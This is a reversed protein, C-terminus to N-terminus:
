KEKSDPRTEPYFCSAILGAANAISLFIFVGCYASAPYGTQGSIAFHQLIRGSINQFAAIYVFCWFNLLAVALGTQEPPNLEKAIM